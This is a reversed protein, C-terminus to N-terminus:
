VNDNLTDDDGGDVDDDGRAEGELDDVVDEPPLTINRGSASPLRQIGCKRMVSQLKKEAQDRASELADLEQRASDLEREVAWKETPNFLLILPQTPVPSPSATNSM